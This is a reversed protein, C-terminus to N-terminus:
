NGKLNNWFELCYVDMEVENIVIRSKICLVIGYVVGFIYSWEYFMKLVIVVNNFDMLFYIFILYFLFWYGEFLGWIFDNMYEINFFNLLCYEFNYKLVCGIFSMFFSKVFNKKLYFFIYLFM